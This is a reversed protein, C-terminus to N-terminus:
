KRTWFGRSLRRHESPAKIAQQPDLRFQISGSDATNLVKVGMKQYRNVVRKAPHKFRSRYGASAIAWQPNVAKIFRKQSSTNSGHHPMLLIDASLLDDQESNEQSLDNSVRLLHKEAKRQIDGTLLVSHEGTSIRLVCSRNNDNGQWNKLPHIFEFEVDDWVWKMGSECLQNNQAGFMDLRNGYSAKVKLGSLVAEAGGMHDRDDHSIVLADLFKISQSKLYPVVVLDGIDFSESARDGADYVLSHNKTQVVVSLGQGVDLFTLWFRGEQLPKPVTFLLLPFITIAAAYRWALGIPLLIIVGAVILTALLLMPLHFMEISAVPAKALWTLLQYLADLHLSLFQFLYSALGESIFSTLVSLMSLPVVVFSVWPIAILNAIPSILSGEGFFFLSLPIMLFSLFCQLKILSFREAKVVRGLLWLIVLVASFSLYFGASMIALPDAILVLVMTLALIRYASFYQRGVLLVLGIVVLILARQTPITMGALLAYFVALLVGLLGGALRQPIVLNLSPFCWWIMWVLLLGSSAVLGIHLGSIAMLHSTGTTRFVEWDQATLDSKEALILASVLAFSRSSGTTESIKQHITERLSNVSYWAPETLLKHKTSKRLYGKAHIGQAFLWKEYDFSNPNKFGSSRKLRVQFQWEEGAKIPISKDYVSLRIRGNFDTAEEGEVLSADAVKFIFSRNIDNVKILSDVSGRILLDKGELSPSLSQSQQYSAVAATMSFGVVIASIFELYKIKQIKFYILFFVAILLISICMALIPLEPFHLVMVSGFLM